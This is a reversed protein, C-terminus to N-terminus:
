SEQEIYKNIDEQSWLLSAIKRVLHSDEPFMEMVGSINGCDFTHKKQSAGESMGDSVFSCDCYIHLSKDIQHVIIKSLKQEKTYTKM